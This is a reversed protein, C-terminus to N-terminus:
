NDCNLDKYIEGDFFCGYFGLFNDRKSSKFVGKDFFVIYGYCLYLFLNVFLFYKIM